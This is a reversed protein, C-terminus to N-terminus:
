DAVGTMRHLESVTAGDLGLAAALDALYRREEESDVHIALLSAAYIEAAQAPSRVQDAIANIDVPASLESLLFQREEDTMDDGLKGIVKALEDKDIQGDAKAAGLMAMLVLRETEPGVLTEAEAPEVPPLSSPMASPSGGQRAQANRLAGIALTGLLALAGGKAAGSIGGGLVAGALAGIGGVQAGSLTGVQDERLWTGARGKLDSATRGASASDIGSQALTQQIQGFIGELGGGGLNRRASEVRNPSPAAGGLGNQVLQGLLNGLSM